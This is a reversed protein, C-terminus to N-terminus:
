WFVDYFRRQLLKSVIEHTFICLILVCLVIFINTYIYINVYVCMFTVHSGYIVLHIDIFIHILYSTISVFFVCWM